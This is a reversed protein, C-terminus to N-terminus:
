ARASERRPSKASGLCMDLFLKELVLQGQRTSSKLMLDAEFLREMFSRLEPSTFREARRLCMYEGYSNRGSLEVEQRSMIQQFQPYSMGRRWVKALGGVLLQRAALLRRVEAAVAGLIKLPHDGQAMLRALQSLAAAADRDGLARTLDFIWGEGRDAFVLEVDSAHITPQQGAFLLLKELEQQLGRLDDGARALVMERAQPELNKGAAQLQREVFESLADRAMRGSKDREITLQLVVDLEEFRKFLRTRRDVQAATLLLFSWAPVGEDLLTGLRNAEAGKRKAFDLSRSKCHSFLALATDQDEGSDVGLLVCLSAASDLRDWREQSWGDVVLLDLLAKAADDRKGERWLQLAKEGLEGSQERAYFYTAGDVWLLKRGSFFPPTMLSAEIDEWNAARGDFREFNFGRQDAPVLKELITACAQTVRLDDGFLLLVGPGRGADLDNLFTKLDRKV